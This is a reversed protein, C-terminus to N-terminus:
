IAIQEWQATESKTPRDNGEPWRKEPSLLAATIVQEEGLFWGPCKIIMTAKRQVKELEITDKSLHSSWLQLVESNLLGSKFGKKLMQQMYHFTNDLNQHLVTM